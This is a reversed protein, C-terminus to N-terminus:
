RDLGPGTSCAADAIVVQLVPGPDAATPAMRPVEWFLNGSRADM